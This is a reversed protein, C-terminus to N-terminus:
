YASRNAGTNSILDDFLLGTRLQLADISVRFTAPEVRLPPTQLLAEQDFFFAATTLPRESQANGFVLIKWFSRPLKFNERVRLRGILSDSASHVPDDHALLPGAFGVGRGHVVVQAREWEEVCAWWRRNMLPHQPVNNTWFFAQHNAIWAERRTGWSVSLSSVMQGRDFGAGRFHQNGAQFSSPLLPDPQWTEARQTGGEPPALNYAVYHPLRRM